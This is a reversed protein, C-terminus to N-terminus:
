KTCEMLRFEVRRDIADQGDDTGSGVINEAYGMGIIESKKKIGPYKVTLVQQVMQARKKSLAINYEAKGTHSSHGVIKVCDGRKQFQSAIQRLWMGYHKPMDGIDIFNASNVKFLIKIEIRKKEDMSINILQGFYREADDSRNLLRASNYLGSYVTMNKGDSRKEAETYYTLAKDNDGKEYAQEAAALLKKTGIYSLYSQSIQEGPRRKVSATLDDLKEDRLFVPSDEYTSTPKYEPIEILADSSARIVGSDMEYVVAFFHYVKQTSTSHSDDYLLIGSLVYDIHDNELAADMQFVNFRENLTITLLKEVSKNITLAQGSNADLFTDLLLKKKNGIFQSNIDRALYAVGEEFGMVRDIKEIRQPIEQVPPPPTACSFALILATALTFYRINKKM